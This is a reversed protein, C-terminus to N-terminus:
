MPGHNHQESRDRGDIDSGVLPPHGPGALWDFRRVHLDQQM